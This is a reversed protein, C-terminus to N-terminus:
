SHGIYNIKEEKTIEIVKNIMAPIDFRGLEEFSFDFYELTKEILDFGHLTPYRDVFNMFESEHLLNKCLSSLLKHRLTNEAVKPFYKKFVQQSSIM